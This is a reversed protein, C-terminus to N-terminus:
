DDTPSKLKWYCLPPDWYCLPPGKYLFKHNLHSYILLFWHYRIINSTTLTRMHKQQHSQTDYKPNPHLITPTFSPQPLPLSHLLQRDNKFFIVSCSILPVTISINLPTVIPEPAWPPAFYRSQAGRGSFDWVNKGGDSFLFRYKDKLIECVKKLRRSM